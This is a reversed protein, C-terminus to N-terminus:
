EIIPYQKRALEKKMGNFHWWEHPLAFFGSKLMVQKLLQRNRQQQSTLKFGAKTLFYQWYIEFHSKYFPSPGMDLRHGHEDVITIDVAIGYNHMSGKDPNAVYKEFRSGKMKNYMARSVSRPRAADLIQLSFTPHTKKLLGQAKSLMLAVQKRLYAKNLGNYYDQKFFNKDPDSNVLDVAISNDIEGIDVLGADLFKQEIDNASSVNPWLIFFLLLFQKLLNHKMVFVKHQLNDVRCRLLTMKLAGLIDNIL